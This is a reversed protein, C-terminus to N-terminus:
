TSRLLLELKTAIDGLQLAMGDHQQRLDVLNDVISETKDSVQNLKVTLGDVKATLTAASSASARTSTSQTTSGAAGEYVRASRLKREKQQCLGHGRQQFLLLRAQLEKYEECLELMADRSLVGLTTPCLSRITRRRVMHIGHGNSKLAELLPGEGFFVGTRIFGLRETGTRVDLEGDIVFFLDSGVDGECFIDTDAAFTMAVVLRCIRTHLGPQLGRFLVMSSIYKNYLRRAVRNATAEPLQAFIDQEDFLTASAGYRARFGARIEVQMQRDFDRAAMWAHLAEVKVSKEMAGASQNMFYTSMLGALGGYILGVVLQAFVLFTFEGTTFAFSSTFVSYRCRVALLGIRVILM